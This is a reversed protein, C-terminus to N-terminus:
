RRRRWNELERERLKQEHRAMARLTQRACGCFLSAFAPALRDFADFVDVEGLEVLDHLASARLLICRRLYETDDADTVTRREHSTTTM